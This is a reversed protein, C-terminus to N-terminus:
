VMRLLENFVGIRWLAATVALAAFVAAGAIILRRRRVRLLELPTAILPIQALVPLSLVATM